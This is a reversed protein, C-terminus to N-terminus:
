RRCARPLRRRRQVGRAAGGAVHRRARAAGDAAAARASRPDRGRDEGEGASRAAQRAAGAHDRGRRSRFLRAPRCRCSGCRSATARVGRDHRARDARGHQRRRRAASEMRRRLLARRGLVAGAGRARVAALGAPDVHRAALWADGDARRVAADAARRRRIAGLERRYRAGRRQAEREPQAFPDVAPAADYGANRVADILTERRRRARPRIRRACDRDRLQREARVGAVRNLVKEIRAACAACTMGTLELDLAETDMPSSPARREGSQLGANAAIAPGRRCPSERRRLEGIRTGRFVSRRERDCTDIDERASMSIRAGASGADNRLAARRRSRSAGRVGDAITEPVDVFVMNTQPPAVTLERHKALGAALRAANEHDEALRAIHQALAYLGAAALIGAQRMGGGLMKRWRRAAKIFERGGCLVSGSRRAWARRCACRCRISIRRSRRRRWAAAEGRREVAARRRSADRPRACRRARARGGRLRGAAGQRRDHERARDAAHARFALRRAQDGGRHRRAAAHRRGRQHAAAAPRQRAGRRRGSRLSVHAGGPRRHIRRRARLPDDRRRPEVAHGLARVAGGRLRAARRSRSGARQRTPDDGFVDDGVPAAAMAARMAPTPRTVTDSRFDTAM